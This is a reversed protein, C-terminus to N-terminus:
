LVFRGVGGVLPWQAGGGHTNPHSEYIFIILGDLVTM